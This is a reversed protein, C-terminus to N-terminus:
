LSWPERMHRARLRNADDDGVFQEQVPNWIVKRRLQMGISAISCLTTARHAIEVPACTRRALRICDIFDGPLTARLRVKASPGIRVNMLNEPKTEVQGRWIFVEGETGVFTIGMRHQPWEPGAKSGFGDGATDTWHWTLGGPFKYHMQWRHPNDFLGDTPFLGKADVEVPGGYDDQGSGQM